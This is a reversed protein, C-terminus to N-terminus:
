FIMPPNLLARWAIAMVLALGVLGWAVYTPQPRRVTNSFLENLCAAALPVVLLGMGVLHLGEQMSLYPLKLLAILAGGMVWPIVLTAVVMLRRNTFQMVTRSDHAQLFALAGFYGLAVQVLGALIALLTNVVNGAQFLWDPVYWFGSQVFTDTLLAGFVTNCCHFATWLLLLKFLGRQARESRWYWAFAVVGLLLSVLPGIGHAAIIAAPWWEADAMRYAIRSPGWTGHLEYFWAVGVEAAQQLGWVVYYTLVYIALGNAAAIM